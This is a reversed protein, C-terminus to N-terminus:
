LKEYGQMAMNKFIEQEAEDLDSLDRAPRGRKLAKGIVDDPQQIPATPPQRTPDAPKELQADIKIDLGLDAPSLDQHQPEEDADFPSGTPEASATPTVITSTPAIIEPM